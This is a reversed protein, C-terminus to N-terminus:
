QIPALHQDTQLDRPNCFLDGLCGYESPSHNLDTPSHSTGEYSLELTSVCELLYTIHHWEPMSPLKKLDVLRRKKSLYTKESKM